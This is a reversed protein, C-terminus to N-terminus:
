CCGVLAGGLWDRQVIEQDMGGSAILGHRASLPSSRQSAKIGRLSVVDRERGGESRVVVIRDRWARRRVRRSWGEELSKVVASEALVALLIVEALTSGVQMKQLIM